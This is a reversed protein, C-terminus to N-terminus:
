RSVTRSQFSASIPMTMDTAPIAPIKAWVGPPAKTSANLDVRSSTIPAANITVAPDNSSGRSDANQGTSIECATTCALPDRNPGAIAAIESPMTPWACNERRIPRLSAKFWAPFAQAAAAAAAPARTQPGDTTNRSKATIATALRRLAAM